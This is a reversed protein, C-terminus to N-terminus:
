PPAADSCYRRVLENFTQLGLPDRTLFLDRPVGYPGFFDPDTHWAQLLNAVRSAETDISRRLEGEDSLLLAVESRTMGTVVAVRSHPVVSADVPSFDRVCVKAYVEKVVLSFEHLGVGNWILVRVLPVLLHRFAGLVKSKVNYADNM